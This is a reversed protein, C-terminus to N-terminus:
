RSQSVETGSNPTTKPTPPNIWAATPPSAHTPRKRVFRDPHAEYAADLVVSRQQIVEEVRGRHVTVPTLLAIGTHYHEHNYWRFFGRCFTKAHELSGFRDPFDPRYKLTKFHAESYPNDNSCHPRSHTRTVAMDALLQVVPKSRMAAGRDAHIVLQGRGIKEKRLTDAIFRQALASSERDAVMWGVVYRSFIDMIVYLSYHQWKGPGNLKTIDWSWVQNPGTALLEPKTYSPHRVRSRRETTENAQELIRYMTRISCLYTGTELLWTYVEAPAMDVFSPQHLVTLLRQREEVSLSRAPKQRGVVLQQPQRKRRYFTARAVGLASCAASLNVQAGLQEV